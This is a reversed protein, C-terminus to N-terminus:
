RRWAAGVVFGIGGVIALTAHPHAKISHLVAGAFTDRVERVSQVAERGMKRRKEEVAVLAGAAGARADRLAALPAGTWASADKRTSPAATALREPNSVCFEEYQTPIISQVTPRCL